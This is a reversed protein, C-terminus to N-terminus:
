FVTNVLVILSGIFIITFVIGAIIFPLPNTQAFDKELNAVRQVGVAAFLTSKVVSMFSIKNHTTKDEPLEESGDSPRNEPKNSPM